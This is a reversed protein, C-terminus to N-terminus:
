ALGGQLLVYLMSPFAASEVRYFLPLPTGEIVTERAEPLRATEVRDLDVVYRALAPASAAILIGLNRAEIRGTLTAPASMQLGAGTPELMVQDDAVLHAGRAMLDLALASKGAGSRGRILLGCEGLAVASAHVLTGM